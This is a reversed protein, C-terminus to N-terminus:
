ASFHFLRQGLPKSRFRKVAPLLLSRAKCAPVMLATHSCYALDRRCLFRGNKRQRPRRENTQTGKFVERGERGPLLDLVRPEQPLQGVFEGGCLTGTFSTLRRVKVGTDGLRATVKLV